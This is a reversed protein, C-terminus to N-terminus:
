RTQHPTDRIKDMMSQADVIAPVVSTAPKLDDMLQDLFEYPTMGLIASL